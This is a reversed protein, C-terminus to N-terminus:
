FRGRSIGEVEGYMCGVFLILSTYYLYLSASFRLLSFLLLSSWKVLSEFSGFNLVQETDVLGYGDSIKDIPYNFFILM